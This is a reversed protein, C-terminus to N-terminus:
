LFPRLANLIELSEVSSSRSGQEAFGVQRMKGRVGVRLALSTSVQCESHNQDARGMIVDNARV